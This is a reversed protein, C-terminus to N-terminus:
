DNQQRTIDYGLKLVKAIMEEEDFKNTVQVILENLVFSADVTEVGKVSSVVRSLSNECGSCTMGIVRYKLSMMIIM